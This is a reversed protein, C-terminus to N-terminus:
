LTREEHKNSNGAKAGPSITLNVVLECELGGAPTRVLEVCVQVSGDAEGVSYVTQQMRITADPRISCLLRAIFKM